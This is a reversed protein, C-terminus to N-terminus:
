EKAANCLHERCIKPRKDYIACSCLGTNGDYQLHKCILPITIQLVPPTGEKQVLGRVQVGHCAIWRALEQDNKDEEVPIGGLVLNISTCCQGCRRCAM